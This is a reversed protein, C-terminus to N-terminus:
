FKFCYFNILCNSSPNLKQGAKQLLYFDSDPLIMRDLAYCHYAPCQQKVALFFNLKTFRKDLTESRSEPTKQIRIWPSLFLDFTNINM